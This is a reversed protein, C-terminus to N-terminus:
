LLQDQVPLRRKLSDIAAGNKALITSLNRDPLLTSRPLDEVIRTIIIGISHASVVNTTATAGSNSITIAAGGDRNVGTLPHFSNRKAISRYFIEKQFSLIQDQQNAIPALGQSTLGLLSLLLAYLKKLRM